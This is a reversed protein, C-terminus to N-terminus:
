GRHCGRRDRDRPRGRRLLVHPRSLRRAKCSLMALTSRGAPDLPGGRHPGLARADAGVVHRDQPWSSRRDEPRSRGGTGCAIGLGRAGTSGLTIRAGGPSRDSYRRHSPEGACGKCEVAVAELADDGGDTFSAIRDDRRRHTLARDRVFRDRACRLQRTADAVLLRGGPVTQALAVICRHEAEGGRGGRPLAVQIRRGGCEPACSSVLVSREGELLGRGRRRPVREEADARALQRRDEHMVAHKSARRMRIGGIRCPTALQEDDGHM